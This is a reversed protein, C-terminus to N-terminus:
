QDGIEKAINNVINNYIEFYHIKQFEIRKNIIEYGNIGMRHSKEPNDRLMNMADVLESTYQYGMNIIISCTEDVIEPSGGTRTMIVPKKTAMAEVITMGFSENIQSPFVVCDSTNYYDVIEDYNINGTFIIHSDAKTVEPKNIVEKIYANELPFISDLSGVILLYTNDDKVEAFADILLDIGKEEVIRGTFLFVYANENIGYKDRLTKRVTKSKNHCFRDTDVANYFTILKESSIYKKCRNKIYNSCALIYNCKKEVIKLNDISKDNYKSEIDNHMHYLWIQSPNLKKLICVNKMCNEFLLINYKSLSIRKKLEYQYATYGRGIKFRSQLIRSIKGKIRSSLSISLQIININSLEIDDLKESPCSFVDIEVGNEKSYGEIIYSTLTEVAGGLVSPVPLIGPSIIAIKKTAMNGGEIEM